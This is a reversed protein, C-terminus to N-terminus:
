NDRMSPDNWCTRSFCQMWRPRQRTPPVVAKGGGSPMSRSTFASGTASQALGRTSATSATTSHLRQESDTLVSKEEKAMSQLDVRPVLVPGVVGSSDDPQSVAKDLLCGAFDHRTASAASRPPGKSGESNEEEPKKVGDERIYAIFDRYQIVGSGSVDAEQLLAEVDCGEFSDGLLRRLSEVTIKGTGDVDFRQFTARLVDDHLRARTQLSAALFERYCIEHDGDSDLGIFLAEAEESDISFNSKLVDAFESLTISGSFDADIAQFQERLHKRDESTLSWAMMSLCVRRFQSAHAFRRLSQLVGCDLSVTCSAPDMLWPHNLAEAATPRLRADTALMGLVFDRADDSLTGFSRRITLKGVAIQKLVDKSAGHFPPSGMLLVYVIIGLSWMDCKETYSQALVEPAVYHMTGCPRSMAALSSDWFKAFGFDILKLHDENKREYLFNELKLDRHVVGHSHLYSVALLMQRATEAADTESYRQRESLRDYLEGGSMYEMVLHLEEATEYVDELTAVHPHDLHLYIEVENRLAAREAESMGTRRFSKVAFKSSGRSALRVPGNVGTGLVKRELRYDQDLSRGAHYRGIISLSGTHGRISEVHVVPSPPPMQPAAQRQGM